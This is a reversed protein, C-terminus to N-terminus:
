RGGMIVGALPLTALIGLVVSVPENPAGIADPAYRLLSTFSLAIAVLSARSRPAVAAVALLWLGYWPYPNPILVWAALALYPWGGADGRAIRVYGARALAVFAALAAAIALPPFAGFIAQLSAEPAYHGAPAVQTAAARLLPISVLITAVAGVIAGIRARPDRLAIPLAALIGPGKVAGSLAALAAGAPASARALAFGALAVCLALADNHGEAACWIGIPNGAIIVAARLRAARNGDYAAYALAGAVLLACTSLVRLAGLAALPAFRSTLSVIGDSIAVFAPGYVCIPPPNGWQWVAADFLANGSPLPAHSYPGIGLRAMEGYAAYAYM